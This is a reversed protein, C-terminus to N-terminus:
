KLSYCRVAVNFKLINRKSFNLICIQPALFSLEIPINKIASKNNSLEWPAMKIKRKEVLSNERVSKRERKKTGGSFDSGVPPMVRRAVECYVRFM